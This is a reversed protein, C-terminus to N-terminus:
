SERQATKEVVRALAPDFQRLRGVVLDFVDPDGTRALWGCIVPELSTGLAADISNLDNLIAEGVGSDGSAWAMAVKHCSDLVMQASPLLPPLQADLQLVQDGPMAQITSLLDAAVRAVQKDDDGLLDGCANAAISQNIEVLTELGVRRAVSTERESTMRLARAAAIQAEFSRLEGIGVRICDADDLHTMLTALYVASIPEAEFLAHLSDELVQRPSGEHLCSMGLATVAAISKDGAAKLISIAQLKRVDAPADGSAFSDAPEANVRANVGLLTEVLDYRLRQDGIATADANNLYEQRVAESGLTTKPPAPDLDSGSGPGELEGGANQDHFKTM